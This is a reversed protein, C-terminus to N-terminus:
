IMRLSLQKKNIHKFFWNFHIEHTSPYPKTAYPDIIYNYSYSVKFFSNQLGIGPIIADASLDMGFTLMQYKAKIGIQLLRYDGQLMYLLNPSLIFKGANLNAGTHLSYKIPMEYGKFHTSYLNKNLHHFALGGYYKKIFLVFGASLDFGNVGNAWPITPDPNDSEWQYPIQGNTQLEFYNFEIGPQFALKHNLLEFHPAYSIGLRTANNDHEDKGAFNLALGGRLFRVYSDISFFYRYNEIGPVPYALGATSLVFASDSGAFAPNLNIKSTNYENFSVDQAIAFISISSSILTLIKKKM